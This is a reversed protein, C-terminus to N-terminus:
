GNIPVGDVVGPNFDTNMFASCGIVNAGPRQEVTLIRCLVARPYRVTSRLLRNLRRILGGILRDTEFNGELEINAVVFVRGTGNM